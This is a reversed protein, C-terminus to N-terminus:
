DTKSRVKNLLFGAIFFNIASGWVMLFSLQYVVELFIAFIVIALTLFELGMMKNLGIYNDSMFIFGLTSGFVVGSYKSLGLFGRGGLVSNFLGQMTM